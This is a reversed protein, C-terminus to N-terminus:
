CTILYFKTEMGVCYTRRVESYFDNMQDHIVM